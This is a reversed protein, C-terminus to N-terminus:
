AGGAMEMAENIRQAALLLRAKDELLLEAGHSVNLAAVAVIKSELHLAKLVDYANFARRVPKARQFLAHDTEEFLDGFELGISELISTTDCGGFCHMLIRGDGCDRITMSPNRDEHAPCCAIYTGRGTSKVKRLRNLVNDISM